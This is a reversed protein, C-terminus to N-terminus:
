RPRPRRASLGPSAQSWRDTATSRQFNRRSAGCHGPSPGWGRILAPSMTFASLKWAGTLRPLMALRNLVLKAPM